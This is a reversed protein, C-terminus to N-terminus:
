AVCILSKSRVVRRRRSPRVRPVQEEAAAVVVVVEEEEGKARPATRAGPPDTTPAAARRPRSRTNSGTEERKGVAM